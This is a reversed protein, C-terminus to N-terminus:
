APPLIPVILVIVQGTADIITSVEEVPGFVTAEGTALCVPNAGNKSAAERAGAALYRANMQAQSIDSFLTAKTSSNECPWHILTMAWHQSILWM